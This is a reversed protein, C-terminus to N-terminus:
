TRLNLSSAFIVPVVGATNVKIPIFSSQGGVSRRGQMKQSYQVAVKRQGGQLLVVFVVVFAIVALIIVAALAAMVIGKGKM